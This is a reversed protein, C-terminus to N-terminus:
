SGPSRKIILVQPRYLFLNKRLFSEQLNIDESSNCVYTVVINGGSAFQRHEKGAYCFTNPDYLPSRPDVEAVSAIRTSPQSWPGELNAATSFLFRSGQNAPSLYVALWRHDEEHYRVSLESVGDSFIIQVGHPNLTKQWRGDQNWYEFHGAPQDLRNIPLRALINGHIRVPDKEHRYLPYFYVYDQHVVSTAALAEIGPAIAGTWDLYDVTWQHPNDAGFDRIRAIKHGDIKFNFPAQAEPLGRVVLLPIYLVGRAIFPDQPWLWEDEGLSSIFKGNKKKLFYQISFKQGPLCASVGLTTGLIVDMGIRDKLGTKDSAFTDGFLWLTRQQDLDISYAGDGGYWGDRDPFSPLCQSQPLRVPHDAPFFVSCSICLLSLCLLFFSSINKKM